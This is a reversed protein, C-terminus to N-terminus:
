IEKVELNGSIVPISSSDALLTKVNLYNAYFTNIPNDKASAVKIENLSM